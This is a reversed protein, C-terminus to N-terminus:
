QRAMGLADDRENRRTADPRTPAPASTSTPGDAAGLPVRVIERASNSSRTRPPHAPWIIPTENPAGVSNLDLPLIM